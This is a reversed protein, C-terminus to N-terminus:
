DDTLEEARDMIRELVQKKELISMGQWDGIERATRLCGECFGNKGMECIGICPSEINSM